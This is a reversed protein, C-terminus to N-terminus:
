PLRDQTGDRYLFRYAVSGCCVSCTLATGKHSILGFKAGTIIGCNHALPTPRSPQIRFVKEACGTIREGFLVVIKSCPHIPQNISGPRDEVSV